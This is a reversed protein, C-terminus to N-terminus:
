RQVLRSGPAVDETVWLNGGIVAGDGVHILGLITANAYIIVNNGITPHRAVGKVPNNNDDKVFSKAGITVGQYITVNHGIIATAGIVVGTGHDIVFSRGITAGPHIDIGTASHAQESIMRPVIPVGRVYLQHAIRYNMTAHFGPYCAIVEPASVAAPDALYTADIDDDLYTRLTPLTSIFIDAETEAKARLKDLSIDCSNGDFCYGATIQEILLGRLEQCETSMTQRIHSLRLDSDTFFGPFMLCATLEVIRRVADNSLLPEGEGRRAPCVHHMGDIDCLRDIVNNMDPNQISSM